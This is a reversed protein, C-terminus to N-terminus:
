LLLINRMFYAEEIENVRIFLDNLGMILSFNNM